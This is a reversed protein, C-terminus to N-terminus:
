VADARTCYLVNRLMFEIGIRRDIKRRALAALADQIESHFLRAKSSPTSARGNM